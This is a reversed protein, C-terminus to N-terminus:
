ASSAAEMKAKIEADVWVWRFYINGVFEVLTQFFPEPESANVRRDLTPNYFESNATGETAADCAVTGDPMAELMGVSVWREGNNHQLIIAKL